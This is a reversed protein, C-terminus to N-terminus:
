CRQELWIAAHLLHADPWLEPHHHQLQVHPSSTATNAYDTTGNLRWSQSGANNVDVHTM